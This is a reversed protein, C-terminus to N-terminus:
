HWQGVIWFLGSWLTNNFPTKIGKHDWRPDRIAQTKLLSSHVKM